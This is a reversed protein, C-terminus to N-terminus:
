FGTSIKTRFNSLFGGGRVNLEFPDMLRYMHAIYNPM